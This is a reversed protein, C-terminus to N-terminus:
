SNGISTFQNPSLIGNGTTNQPHLKGPQGVPPLSPHSDPTMVVLWFVGLFIRLIAPFHAVLFPFHSIPFPYRSVPPDATQSRGFPSCQRDPATTISIKRAYATSQTVPGFDLFL